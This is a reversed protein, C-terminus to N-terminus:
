VINELINRQCFEKILKNDDISYLIDQHENCIALINIKHHTSQSRLWMCTKLRRLMSFRESSVSTCPQVILLKILKTTEIFVILILNIFRYSIIRGSEKLINESYIHYITRKNQIIDIVM